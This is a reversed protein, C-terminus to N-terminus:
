YREFEDDEWEEEVKMDVTDKVPRDGTEKKPAVSAGAEQKLKINAFKRRQVDSLNFFMATNRLHEGQNSLEQSTSIMEDAISVNQQIVQDLQQISTNIQGAGSDQENCAASIEQVLQATKQIDPVLKELMEGAREAIEVSSVSLKNIQGAATQSREALKRVESAVVAFGRGHEEARAAEIAANLALLNTQRAIDEIVSITEAIKKMANVTKGVASGSEQADEASKLAIKETESANDANQKINSSMEEMSASAEESSAAQKSSGLSMNESGSRVSQSVSAIRDASTQLEVTFVSLNEIMRNLNNRIDNFDGRYEDTIKEPIDGKSIQDVYTAAMNIPGKFADILENVGMILKRWDGVFAESDGRIDLRGDRVALTLHETEKLLGNMTGMLMNLNNKIQNFDGKYAETIKEPIDGKAIREIYDATMNFPGTFADILNNVSSVLEGWSGSFADANGRSELRGEQVSQILDDTEKLINSIKDKMNRFVDALKGFEDKQRIDIEVSFDGQAIANATEVIKTISGTIARTMVACILIGFGIAALILIVIQSVRQSNSAELRPGFDDQEAKISLKVDEVHKAIEPGIRDLTERIIKNRDFIISVLSDFTRTYDNKAETVAAMMRRRDQNELEKDLINLEKQMKDFEVHVRDVARRDNTDLFKGMYLRGLLLHKLTLGAHYAASADADDFASTMINTLTKEMLPGKVNLVENVHKNRENKLVIVKQFASHYETHAGDVNEIKRARESVQIEKRAEKLFDEMKRFREQYERLSRENGTGIYDKVYFRAMLMNAQLRGALNTNRALERYAKFSEAGETMATYAVVGVIVLLLVLTAFGAIIKKAVSLDKFNIFM